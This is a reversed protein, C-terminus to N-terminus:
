SVDFAKNWCELHLGTLLLERQDRTLSPFADQIFSGAEWKLLGDEDVDLYTPELCMPCARTIVQVNM